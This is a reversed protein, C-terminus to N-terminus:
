KGSTRAPTATRTATHSTRTTPLHRDARGLPREQTQPLCADFQTEYGGDIRWEDAM